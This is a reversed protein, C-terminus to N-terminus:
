ILQVEEKKVSHFIKTLGLNRRLKSKWESGFKPIPWCLLWNYGVFGQSQIKQSNALLITPYIIVKKGYNKVNHIYEDLMRELIDVQHFYIDDDYVLVYETGVNQVGNNRAACVGYANQNLVRVEFEFKLALIKEILQNKPVDFDIVIVVQSPM